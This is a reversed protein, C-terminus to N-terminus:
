ARRTPLVLRTGSPNTRATATRQLFGATGSSTDVTTDTNACGGDGNTQYNLRVAEIGIREGDATTVVPDTWRVATSPEDCDAFVESWVMPGTLHDAEIWLDRIVTEDGTALDVISGRWGREPSRSVRYRYRRGPEWRYTRTNINDLASPLASVSGDLEGGADAYGGWNVAGADPYAPHYQLGVHAGGVRGVGREFNVQMAWFYLKPVSPPEVVEITVEAATLPVPPADWVLHFSSAGNGSPPPGTVRPGGGPATATGILREVFDRLGM